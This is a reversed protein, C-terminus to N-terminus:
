PRAAPQLLRNRDNTDLDKQASLEGHRTFGGLNVIADLALPLAWQRIGTKPAYSKGTFISRRLPPVAAKGAGHELMSRVDGHTLGKVPPTMQPTGIPIDGSSSSLGGMQVGGPRGPVATGSLFEESNRGFGANELLRSGWNLPNWRSGTNSLGTATRLVKGQEVPSMGRFAAVSEPSGSVGPADFGKQLLSFDPNRSAPSRAGTNVTNLANRVVNLTTVPLTNVVGLGAGRVNGVASDNKVNDHANDDQSMGLLRRGLYGTFGSVGQGVHIRNLSESTQDEQKQQGSSPQNILNEYVHGAGGGAAAGALGGTMMSRLVSRRREKESRLNGVVTSLGGAAAGVGGGLLAGYTAPYSSPDKTFGKAHGKVREILDSLWDAQKAAAAKEHRLQVFRVALINAAEKSTM